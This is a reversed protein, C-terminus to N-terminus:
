GDEGGITENKKKKIFTLYTPQEFNTPNHSETNQTRGRFDNYYNNRIDGINLM